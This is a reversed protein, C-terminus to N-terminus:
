CMGTNPSNGDVPTGPEGTGGNTPVYSTSMASLISLSSGTSNLLAKAADASLLTFVNIFTEDSSYDCHAASESYLLIARASNASIVNSITANATV